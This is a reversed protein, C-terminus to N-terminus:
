EVVVSQTSIVDGDQIKVYYIGPKLITCDIKVSGNGTQIILEQGLVDLVKVLIDQQSTSTITVFDSAPNPSLSVSKSDESNIGVLESEAM